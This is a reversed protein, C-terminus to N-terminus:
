AWSKPEAYEATFCIGLPLIGTRRAEHLLIALDFTNTSLTLHGNGNLDRRVSAARGAIQEGIIVVEAM